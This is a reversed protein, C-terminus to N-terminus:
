ISWHLCRDSENSKCTNPVGGANTRLWSWVRMFFQIKMLKSFSMKIVSKNYRKLLYSITTEENFIIFDRCMQNTKKTWNEFTLRQKAVVNSINDREHKWQLFYSEINKDDQAVVNLLKVCSSLSTLSYSSWKEFFNYLRSFSKFSPRHSEFM